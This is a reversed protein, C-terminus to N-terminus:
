EGITSESTTSTESCLIAPQFFSDLKIQVSQQEEEQFLFERVNRLTNMIHRCNEIPQLAWMISLQMLAM